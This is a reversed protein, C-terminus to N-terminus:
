YATVSKEDGIWFESTDHPTADLHACIAVNMGSIEAAVCGIGPSATTEL